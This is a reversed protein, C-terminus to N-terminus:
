FFSKFLQCKCNVWCLFVQIWLFSFGAAFSLVQKGQKWSLELLMFSHGEEITSTTCHWLLLWFHLVPVSTSDCQYVLVFSNLPCSLNTYSFLFWKYDSKLRMLSQKSMRKMRSGMKLPLMLWFDFNYNHYSLSINQCEWRILPIGCIETYTLFRM